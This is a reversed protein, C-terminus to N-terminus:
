KKAAYKPHESAVHEVVSNKASDRTQYGIVINKRCINCTSGYHPAGRRTGMKQVSYARPAM